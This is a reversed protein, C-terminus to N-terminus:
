CRGLNARTKSPRLTPMPKAHPAVNTGVHPAGLTPVLRAHHAVHTGTNTNAHTKCTHFGLNSGRSDLRWACCSACCLACCSFIFTFYLKFPTSLTSFLLIILALVLVVCPFWLIVILSDLAPLIGQLDHDNCARVVHGPLMPSM